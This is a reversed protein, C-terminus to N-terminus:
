AASRSQDAYHELFDIVRRRYTLFEPHDLVAAPARRAAGVIRRVAGTARRHVNTNTARCHPEYIDAGTQNAAWAM